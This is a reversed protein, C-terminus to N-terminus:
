DTPPIDSMSIDFLNPFNQLLFYATIHSSPNEICAYNNGSQISGTGIGDNQIALKSLPGIQVDTKIIVCLYNPHNDDKNATVKVMAIYKGDSRESITSTATFQAPTDINVQGATIGGSQYQSSAQYTNGVVPKQFYSLIGVLLLLTTIILLAFTLNKLTM